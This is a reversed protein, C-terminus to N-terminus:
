KLKLHEEKKNDYYDFMDQIIHKGYEKIRDFDSMLSLFEEKSLTENLYRISLYSLNYGSYNDTEFLPGHDIDNLNPIIKTQNKVKEYFKNFIEENNLVDYEGSLFQAMGEDYWVIRKSCDDKLIYELYLIHFLEHNATHLKKNYKPSGVIINPDLYANVMGKDYTGQAYKPLSEKEGRLEYIFNRFKDIDDFYNLQRQKWKELKFIEKYQNIKNLLIDHMNDTIYKLSDPSYLKYEDCEYQLKEM